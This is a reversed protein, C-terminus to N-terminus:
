GYYSNIVFRTDKWGKVQHYIDSKMAISYDNGGKSCMDGFFITKGTMDKLIQSKDKGKPFIDISVKGGVVFELKPYRLSLLETIRKREGSIKDWEYYKERQSTTADKGLTSFNVMGIREELNVGTVKKACISEDAIVLLDLHLHSGMKWKSEKTLHNRIFLQNGCNQYVGNVCRYIDLGVQEVTKLKDSGTVLFVADGQGRIKTIWNGFFKKFDKDIVTRASTLTGDVDFLYNIM